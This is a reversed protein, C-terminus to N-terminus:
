VIDHADRVGARSRWLVKGVFFPGLSELHLATQETKRM